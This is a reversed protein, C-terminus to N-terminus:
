PRGVRREDPQQDLQAAIVATTTPPVGSAPPSILTDPVTAPARNICNIKAVNIRWSRESASARMTWANIM